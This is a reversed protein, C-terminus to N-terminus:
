NFGSVLVMVKISLKVCCRVAHVFHLCTIQGYTAHIDEQGTGLTRIEIQFKLFRVKVGFMGKLM